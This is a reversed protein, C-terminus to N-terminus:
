VLKKGEEAYLNFPIDKKNFRIKRTVYNRWNQMARKSNRPGTYVLVEMHTHPFEAFGTMGSIGVIDGVKVGQGIKIGLVRAFNHCLHEMSVYEDNSCKIQVFNGQAWYKKTLGHVNSDQKIASITGSAPAIVMTGKPMYFDVAHKIGGQHAPSIFHSGFANVKSMQAPTRYIGKTYIDPADKQPALREKKIDKKKAMNSKSIPLKSGDRVLKNM